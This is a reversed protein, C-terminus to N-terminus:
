TPLDIGDILIQPLDEEPSPSGIIAGQGYPCNKQRLLRLDNHGEIDMALIDKGTRPGLEIINGLLSRFKESEGAHALLSKTIVLTSYLPSVAADLPLAGSELGSAALRVGTERIRSVPDRLVPSWPHQKTFPIYFEVYEPALTSEELALAVIDPLEPEDTWAPPLTCMIVLRKGYLAHWQRAAKLAKVLLARMFPAVLDKAGIRAYLADGALRGYPTTEYVAGVHFGRLYGDKLYVQPQYYLSVTQTEIAAGPEAAVPAEEFLPARGSATEAPAAAIPPRPLIPEPAPISEPAPPVPEATSVRATKALAQDLLAQAYKATDSYAVGSRILPMVYQSEVILHQELSHALREIASAIEEKTRELPSAIAFSDDAVRGVAWEEPLISTIKQALKLMLEDPIAFGKEVRLMDLNEVQLLACGLPYEMTALPLRAALEAVFGAYPLLGPIEAPSPESAQGRAPAEVVTFTVVLAEIAGHKEELVPSIRGLYLERGLLFDQGLEYSQAKHHVRSVATEWLRIVIEKHVDAAQALVDLLNAPRGEGGKMAFVSEAAPNAYRIDGEETVMLILDHSSEIAGDILPRFAMWSKRRARHSLSQILILLLLLAVVAIFGIKLTNVDIMAGSFIGMLRQWSAVIQDWIRCFICDNLYVGGTVFDLM